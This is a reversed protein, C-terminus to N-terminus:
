KQYCHNKQIYDLVEPALGSLTQQNQIAHRIATSSYPYQSHEYFYIKGAIDNSLDNPNLTIHKTLTESHPVHKEHPRALVIIHALKLIDQYRHWLHFKSFADEGMIWILTDKPYEQHLEELSLISYSKGNRNIERTDISFQPYKKLAIELMAIRAENSANNKEKLVPQGCPLFLLADFHFQTQLDIATNLHGLHIPDFSGGFVGIRKAM